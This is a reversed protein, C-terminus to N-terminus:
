IKRAYRIIEKFFRGAKKRLVDEETRVRNSCMYISSM